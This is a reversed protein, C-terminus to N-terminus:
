FQYVISIKQEKDTEEIELGDDEPPKSDHRLSYSLKLKLSDNMKIIANANFLVQTDAADQIRPQYYGTAVFLVQPNVAHTYSLYTNARWYKDSSNYTNLEYKEKVHFGGIGVALKLENNSYPLNFRGGGGLLVRSTLRTFDDDQYQTFLEASLVPTLDYSWRLHAFQNDKSKVENSKGYEKAIIFLWQQPSQKYTVKGGYSSDETDSNGSKNEIAAELQGSLGEPTPELRESEINSIALAATPLTLLATLLFNVTLISSYRSMWLDMPLLLFPTLITISNTTVLSEAAKQSLNLNNKSIDTKNQVFILTQATSVQYKKPLQCVIILYLELLSERIREPSFLM